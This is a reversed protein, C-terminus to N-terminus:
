WHKKVAAVMTDLNLENMCKFHRKPCRGYGLKSCPHCSLSSNNMIYSQPAPLTKLNNFGYYPFMGM